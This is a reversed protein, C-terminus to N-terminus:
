FRKGSVKFAIPGAKLSGPCQRVSCQYFSLSCPGSVHKMDSALDLKCGAIAILSLKGSQDYVYNQEKFTYKNAATLSWKGLVISEGPSSSSNTGATDFEVTTGGANFTMVAIFPNSGDTNAGHLNWTGIIPDQNQALAPVASIFVLAGITAISVAVFVSARKIQM